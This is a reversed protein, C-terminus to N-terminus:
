GFNGVEHLLNRRKAQQLRGLQRIREFRPQPDCARHHHRCAAATAATAATTATTATTGGCGRCRGCSHLLCVKSDLQRLKVRGGLTRQQRCARM